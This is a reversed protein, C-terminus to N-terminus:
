SLSLLFLFSVFFEILWRVPWCSVAQVAAPVAPCAPALVWPPDWGTPTGATSNGDVGFGRGGSIGLGLAAVQQTVGWRQRWSSKTHEFHRACAGAEGIGRVGAFCSPLM